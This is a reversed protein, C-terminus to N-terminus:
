RFKIVSEKQPDAGGVINVKGEGFVNFLDGFVQLVDLCEQLAVAYLHELVFIHAVRSKLSM